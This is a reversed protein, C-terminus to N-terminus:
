VALSRPLSRALTADSQPHEAGPPSSGSAERRGTRHLRLRWRSGSARGGVSGARSRCRLSTGPSCDRGAGAHGLGAPRALGRLDQRRAGPRPRRPRARRARRRGRRAHDAGDLGAAPLAGDVAGRSSRGSTRARSSDPSSAENGSRVDAVLAWAGLLIAAVGCGAALAALTPWGPRRSRPLDLAPLPVPTGPSAEHLAPEVGEPAVDLPVLHARITGVPRPYHATGVAGDPSAPM